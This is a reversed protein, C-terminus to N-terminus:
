PVTAASRDDRGARWDAALLGYLHEDSWADGDRYSERLTGERTFGLREMLRWSPDNRTDCDATVKHKGRAEFLYRLLEGIAESAFGRGQSGPHLTFGVDVIVPVDAHPRFGCDGVVRGPAEREAIALQHWEGPEDPHRDALWDMFAQAREVPYPADWSQYRAVEPISRYAAFAEADAARFRRVVLRPTVLRDFSVDM